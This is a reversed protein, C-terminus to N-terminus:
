TEVYCCVIKFFFLLFVSFCSFNICLRWSIMWLCIFFIYTQRLFQCLLALFLVLRSLKNMACKISNSLVFLVNKLLYM